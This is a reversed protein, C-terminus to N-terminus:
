GWGRGSHGGGFVVEEAQCEAVVGVKGGGVDELEERDERGVLLQKQLSVILIYAAGAVVGALRGGVCADSAGYEGDVLESDELTAFPM